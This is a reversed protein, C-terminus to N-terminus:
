TQQPQTPQTLPDTDPQNAYNIPYSSPSWNRMIDIQVQSLQALTRARNISGGLQWTDQILLQVFKALGSPSSLDCDPFPRRKRAQSNYGGILSGRRRDAARAPDHTFCFHSATQAFSRCPKGNKTKAQCRNPM